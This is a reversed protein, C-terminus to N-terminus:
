SDRYLRAYLFVTHANLGAVQCEVRVGNVHFSAAANQQRPLRQAEVRPERPHFVRVVVADGELRAVVRLGKYTIVGERRERVRLLREVLPRPKARTQVQAKVRQLAAQAGFTHRSAQQRAPSQVPHARPLVRRIMAVLTIVVVLGAVGFWRRDGTEQGVTVMIAAIFSGLVDVALDGLTLRVGWVTIGM